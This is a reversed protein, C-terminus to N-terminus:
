LHTREVQLADVAHLLVLQVSVCVKEAESQLEKALTTSVAEGGKLMRSQPSKLLALWLEIALELGTLTSRSLRSNLWDNLFSLPQILLWSLPWNYRRLWMLRYRCCAKDTNAETQMLSAVHSM